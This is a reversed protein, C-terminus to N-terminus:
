FPRRREFPVIQGPHDPPNRVERIRREIIEAHEGPFLIAAITVLGTAVVMSGAIITILAGLTMDDGM